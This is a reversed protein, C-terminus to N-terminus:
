ELTVRTLLVQDDVPAGEADAVLLRVGSAENYLGLRVQYSGPPTEAPLPLDHRDLIAQGPLWRNTNSAYRVPRSDDQVWLKGTDDIIHVFVKYSADMEQRALWVLDLRLQNDRVVLKYGQLAIEGAFEVATAQMSPPPAVRAATWWLPGILLVLGIAVVGALRPHRRVTWLLWGCFVLLSFWRLSRRLPTPGHEIQVTHQGAPIPVGAMGIEGVPAVAVPEGDVTARWGPMWFAHLSLTWPAAADVQAALRGATFVKPQIQAQVPPMNAALPPSDLILDRMAACASLSSTRPVYEYAWVWCDDRLNDAQDYEYARLGTQTIDAEGVAALGLSRLMAPEHPLNWLSAVGYWLLIGGIVLPLLRNSWTPPADRTAMGAIFIALFLAAPGLWRFPFQILAVAPIAQWLPSALQSSLVLAILAGVGWFGWHAQESPQISRWAWLWVVLALGTLILMPLGLEPMGHINGYTVIPSPRLLQAPAFLEGMYEAQAVTTDVQNLGQPELAAPLWYFAALAAGGLAAAVLWSLRRLWDARRDTALIWIAYLLAFPLYLLTSLFHTCILVAVTLSAVLMAPWGPQQTLRLIALFVLPGLALGLHEALAGRLHLNALLYPSFLYVLAAIWGARKGFLARGLAFSTWGALITILTFGLKFSLVYGAGALHISELLLYPLPPYYSLVGYGYALGHDPFRLPLWDGTRVQQDLSFLRFIHTLSDDSNPLGPTLWLPAAAVLGVVAASTLVLFLRFIRAM